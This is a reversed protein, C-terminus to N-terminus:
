SDSNLSDPIRLNGEGVYTKSISDRYSDTEHRVVDLKLMEPSLDGMFGLMQFQSLIYTRQAEVLAVQARVLQQQADLTDTLTREGVDFEQRRGELTLQAAKVQVKFQEVSAKNASVAKWNAEVNQILQLETRMVTSRNQYYEQKSQRIRSWEAGSQYIPITLQAQFTANNSFTSTGGGAVMTAPFNSVSSNSKQRQGSISLDVNPRLAANRVEINAKAADRAFSAQRLTPNMDRAKQVYQDLTQPMESAARICSPMNKIKPMDHVGIVQRYSAEAAAVTAEATLRDSIASAHRSRAEAVETRTKEGVREQAQVQQLVRLLFEESAKRFKLTEYARWLDLYTQVATLLVSQEAALYRFKASEVSAKAQKIENTTQFGNFVNQRINAAASLTDSKSSSAGGNNQSFLRNGNRQDISHSATGTISINPLWGAKAQPIAEVAAYYQRLAEKIQPNNEYAQSLATQISCDNYHKATVPSKAGDKTSMSQSTGAYANYSSQSSNTTSSATANQGASIAILSATLCLKTIQSM